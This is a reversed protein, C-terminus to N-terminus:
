NMTTRSNSISYTGLIVGKVKSATLNLDGYFWDGGEGMRMSEALHESLTEFIDFYGFHYAVFIWLGYGPALVNASWRSAWSKLYPELLRAVDHHECVEAVDVLEGFSLHLPITLHQLHAARLAIEIINDSNDVVELRLKGSQDASLTEITSAWVPSALRVCSSSVLWTKSSTGNKSIVVFHMDGGEHITIVNVDDPLSGVNQASLPHSEPQTVLENSDLAPDMDASIDM